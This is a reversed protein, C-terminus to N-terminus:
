VKMEKSASQSKRSAMMTEGILTASIEFKMEPKLGASEAPSGAVVSNVKAFPEELTAPISDGLMETRNASAPAVDDADQISAFHEHLYKELTNLLDKYDNKLHIIQARTTRVISPTLEFELTDRNSPAGVKRSTLIQGLFGM